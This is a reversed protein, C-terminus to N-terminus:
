QRQAAEVIELEKRAADAAAGYPEEQLFLNLEAAARDFQRKQQFARAAVRHTLSHPASLKHAEDSTAIADDFHKELFQCYSLVVFTKPNRPALTAARNLETEAEPLKGEELDLRGFNLHALAFNNDLAIAKELSQRAQDRNGLHEYAVGLNNYAGPFSPYFSIAKDLRDRAQAWNQKAFAQNAKELEKRARQPIELDGVSVFASEADWKRQVDVASTANIPLSPGTDIDITRTQSRIAAPQIQAWASGLLALVFFFVRRQM